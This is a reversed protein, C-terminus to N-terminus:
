RAQLLIRWSSKGGQVSTYSSFMKMNSSIHQSYESDIVWRDKNGVPKDTVSLVDCQGEDGEILETVNADSQKKKSALM